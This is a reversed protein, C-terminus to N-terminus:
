REVDLDWDCCKGYSISIVKKYRDEGVTLSCKCSLDSWHENTKTDWPQTCFRTQLLVWCRNILYPYLCVLSNISLQGVNVSDVSLNWIPMYINKWIYMTLKMHFNWWKLFSTDEMRWSIWMSILLDHNEFFFSWTFNNLAKESKNKFISSCIGVAHEM